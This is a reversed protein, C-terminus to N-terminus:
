RAGAGNVVWTFQQPQEVIRRLNRRYALSFAAAAIAAVAPFAALARAALPAFAPAAAGNLLQFLAFFWFSPIWQLWAHAFLATFPPKLFWAILITFFCGMQLFGSIRLFLRYSLVLAAVSQLALLASCVFLGALLQTLWWAGPSRLGGFAHGPATWLSPFTLGTFLNVAGVAIGLATGLAAVKALFITRSRVPLVGLILCDPRDPLITNWALVSFLGAIAMTSAILFEQEPYSAILLASQPLRSEIYRPVSVLAYTFSAAALMAAFQILLKQVDAGTSLIELDVLRALFDRYLVRFPGAPPCEPM